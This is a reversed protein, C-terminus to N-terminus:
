GSKAGVAYGRDMRELLLRLQHLEEDDLWIDIAVNEGADQIRLQEPSGALCLV